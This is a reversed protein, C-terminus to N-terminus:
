LAAEDFDGGLLKMLDIDDIEEITDDTDDLTITRKWEPFGGLSLFEDDQYDQWSGTTVYQWLDTEKLYEEVSGYKENYEDIALSSVDVEYYPVCEELIVSGRQIIFHESFCECTETSYIEVSVHYLNTLQKLGEDIEVMSDAVSWKCTGYVIAEYYEDTEKPSLRYDEGLWDHSTVHQCFAIVSEEEAGIVYMYFSAM